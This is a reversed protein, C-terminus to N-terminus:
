NTFTSHTVINDLCLHVMVMLDVILKSIFARLLPKSGETLTKVVPILLPQGGILHYRVYPVCRSVIGGM